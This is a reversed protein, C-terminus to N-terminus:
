RRMRPDVWTYLLDVVLNVLLAMAVVLLLGGQVIPFDRNQISTLLLRGLGPLAFLSEIVVVGGLIQILILGMFTVLPILINRLVHKFVVTRMPLGKAIALRVYDRGMASVVSQRVFQSYAVAQLIGLSVIPLFLIELNQALDQTPGRYMIPPSWRFWASAGILLMLGVWFVPAALGTVNVAQVLHDPWRGEYVGALLGLPVGVLTAVLLTLLGLELTVAFAQLVIGAVPRGQNWSTGLDGTLASGLWDLYQVHVPRDLGFFARLSAATRPDDGAQGLMQAVIDGPVARVLLFVVISALIATVLSAALRRILFTAM